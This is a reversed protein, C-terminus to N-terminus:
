TAAFGYRSHFEAIHHAVHGAMIFAAARVSLPHGGATGVRTWAASPLHQLMHLHGERVSTFEALLSDVGCADHAAARVFDDQEFGPLPSDARRAIWLARFGFVRETDILHGVVERVSWKEPAYRFGARAEGLGHFLTKLTTLQEHLVPLVTDTEIRSIYRDFYPSYEGAAPKM